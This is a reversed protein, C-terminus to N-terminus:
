NSQQTLLNLLEEQDMHVLSDMDIGLESSLNPISLGFSQLLELFDIEEGKFSAFRTRSCFSEIVTHSSLHVISKVNEPNKTL